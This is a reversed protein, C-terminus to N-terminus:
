GRIGPLIQGASALDYDVAWADSSRGSVSTSGYGAQGNREYDAPSLGMAQLATVLFQNHPIGRIVNGDEQSFYAKGDWDIYDLYRGPKIFGGASGALICPV